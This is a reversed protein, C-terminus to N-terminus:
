NQEDTQEEGILGLLRQFGAQADNRANGNNRVQRMEANDVEAEDCWREQNLWTAPLPIFQGGDRMWQDSHEQKKVAEILEETTVGKKLAKEFAERAKGKGTKKPYVKWFDEFPDFAFLESEKQEKEKYGKDKIMYGKDKIPQHNSSNAQIQKVNAQTKSKGGKSGAAAKALASDINPKVLQFMAATVGAADPEVGNLGYDCVAMLFDAQDGKNQLMKAAEFFSRMFSFAKREMKHEGAGGGALYASM